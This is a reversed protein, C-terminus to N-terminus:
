SSAEPAPISAPLREATLCFRHVCTEWDMELIRRRAVLVVDCNPPLRDQYLRFLERLRRKARNRHVANGTRKSAIVGVRRLPPREAEPVVHLQFLFPGCERGRGHQRVVEFEATRRIHQRPHFRM